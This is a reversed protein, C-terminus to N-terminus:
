ALLSFLKQLRFFILTGFWGSSFGPDESFNEASKHDMFGSVNLCFHAIGQNKQKCIGKSVFAKEAVEPQFCKSLFRDFNVYKELKIFSTGSPVKAM